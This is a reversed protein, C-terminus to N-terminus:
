SVSGLTVLKLGLASLSKEPWKKGEYEQLLTLKDHAHETRPTYIDNTIHCIAIAPTQQLKVESIYGM